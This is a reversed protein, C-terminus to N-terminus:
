SFMASHPAWRDAWPQAAELEFAVQYLTKDAGPAAMFHSGIPLGTASSSFLPVSMAPAGIGNAVPTYSMLQRNRELALDVPTDPAIYGVRPTELPMVPTLWADHRDFFPQFQRALQEFYAMGRDYAGAPLSAGRRGMAVTVPTLMGADEARKGSLSEVAALLRPMNVLMVAELAEFMAIGDVPNKVEVVEHGLSECLRATKELVERVSAVPQKGFCNEASLAIRLRRRDPGTVLGMAAYSGPGSSNETAALLAASDRVTRSLCQHTRLFMHEGGPEGSVMRYRSAKMGLVGCCSAPIRNSGGGDTGHALPVYGAAVAVASGGSSGGATLQPNWPNRTPGFALNDTLAMSAFEPTNTMGMINLGAAEMAVVYAVSEAPVNTLSMLSGNTRRVGGVDILDKLVTPVGAFVSDAPISGALDRARDLTLTTMANLRGDVVAIRQATAEVLQLPSVQGKRVLGALGMGDYALLQDYGAGAPARTSGAKGAVTASTLPIGATIAGATGGALALLARRSISVSM